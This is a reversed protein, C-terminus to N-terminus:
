LAGSFARHQLSAFLGDTDRSARAAREVLQAAATVSRTFVLQEALPVVPVKLTRLRGMSIRARTQGQVLATALREISPMNLLASLWVAVARTPDVRIQVCDAKNLARKLWDPQVCARLNPNGLTGVIVDGPVCEHKRLSRFHEESIYASDDDVFTGVGINQLRIVRVGSEVYHSSKLNSGFPGDSFRQALDALPTLPLGRPNVAPDGFMDLYVSETISDLLDLSARRKARLEDAQDLVAAIRRQEDIPPLAMSFRALESPNLRPLNAGVSRATALDVMTPQRLLRCLYIRDVEPGPLIPLIDTSCVGSFDPMAIKALYPRLKGYLIHQDTFDFKASALQGREVASVDFFEGGREINELGVYMTGSEIDEPARVVREIRAIDGLAVSRM